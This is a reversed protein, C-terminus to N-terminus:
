NLLTRKYVLEIRDTMTKHDFERSCLERGTQGLQRRLEPDAILKELAASLASVEKPRILYGTRDNLVVEQAGDVDFSVVPKGCLLAQPIARALGERLSCHVLIDGAHLLEGIQEPAILGTFRFRDQLGLRSIVQELSQRLKGDGIFLWMVNKHKRAIEKASEIIYEHGKLEFLRAVTTIVIAEAPIDYKNRLATIKDASPRELFYKTELGSFVKTFQEPRGIGAALTQETMAQAVSIFADTRRAAAKEVSIYFRNLLGSQYPHFALGHITHIIRPQGGHASQERRLAEVRRCCAASTKDRLKAAAWRGLIGAKASHTHVIDPKLQVLIKKLQHYCILDRVPNIARRMQKLEIVQYGGRRARDILQG